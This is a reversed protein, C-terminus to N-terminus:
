WQESGEAETGCGTVTVKTWDDENMCRVGTSTLLIKYNNAATSIDDATIVWSQGLAGNATLLPNGTGGDQITIRYRSNTTDLPLDVTQNTANFNTSVVGGDDTFLYSANFGKYTFNRVKHRALQEALRLMEQQAEAKAARRLFVEYSPIAIAALIAVIMLVVMLEILTFGQNFKSMYRKAINEM